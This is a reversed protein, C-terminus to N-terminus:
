LTCALGQDARHQALHTLWSAFACRESRRRRVCLWVCSRRVADATRDRFDILERLADGLEIRPDDDRTALGGSGRVVEDVLAVLQEPLEGFLDADGRELLGVAADIDVGAAALREDDAGLGRCQRGLRGAIVGRADLDAKAIAGCENGHGVGQAAAAEAGQELHAVAQEIRGAVREPPDRDAGGQEEVLGM